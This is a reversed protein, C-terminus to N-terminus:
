SDAWHALHQIYLAKSLRAGHSSASAWRGNGGNADSRHQSSAEDQPYIFDPAM